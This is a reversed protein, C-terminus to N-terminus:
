IRLAFNSRCYTKERFESHIGSLREIFKQLCEHQRCAARAVAPVCGFACDAVLAAAESCFLRAQLCRSLFFRGSASSPTQFRRITKPRSNAKGNGDFAIRGFEAPMNAPSSGWSFAVPFVFGYCNRRVSPGVISWAQAGPLTRDVM